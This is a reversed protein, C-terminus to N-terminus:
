PQPVGQAMGADDIRGMLEDLEDQSFDMGTFDSPTYVAASSGACAASLRRVAQRVRDLLADVTAAEHGPSHRCSLVIAGGDLWVDFALVHRRSAQPARESGPALRLLDLGRSGFQGIEGVFNFSVPPEARLDPHGGYRLLGYGMGGEPTARLREKLTVTWAPVDDSAAPVVFPYRTTFWGITRSLDIAPDFPQRGHGELDLLCAGGAWASVAMGVAALVAEHPRLGFVSAMGGLFGASEDAPLALRRDAAEGETNSHGPRDMPLPVCDGALRLMDQWFGLSASAAQARGALARAWWSWSTSAARISAPGGALGARLDDALISWSVMDSLAHHVVAVLRAQRASVQLAGLAFVRGEALDLTDMLEDALADERRALGPEDLGAAEVVRVGPDAADALQQAMGGATSIWRMRLADHTAQLARAVALLGDADVRGPYRFVAALCWRNRDPMPIETFWQQIPTLPVAERLPERGAMGGVQVALRALGRPTPAQFVQAPTLAWGLRRARGVIQIAMISDGGLAFFDDDPGVSETQLVERWLGRILDLVSDEAGPGAGAAPDGAPAGALSALLAQRDIKGNVTLPLAPLSLIRRPVMAAPVRGALWTRLAEGDVDGAVAAALAPERGDRKDVLVVADRVGAHARLAEALGAPEIRHGRIKVMDDGRGLFVIRGDPRRRGLDGSRYSRTGDDARRFSEKGAPEPQTYGAAVAPGSIVIEGEGGAAVPRGDADLLEVGYGDLPHGIPVAHDGDARLEPLAETMCAGVTTETPGYHNFIRCAAGLARLRDVLRWALVDGGLILAGRPLLGEADPSDLLAALHAPVIKLVDFPTQRVWSALAAPDRATEADIAHLAGGSWLAGFVSTYGLDAAFSSVMAFSPPGAMGLRKLMAPVYAAIAGHPVMVGKPRGTSGSTYLVYAIDRAAVPAPLPAPGGAALGRRWALVAVGDFAARAGDAVVLAKAGSDRLVYAHHEDPHDEDLPVFAAGLRLAALMAVVPGVGRPLRFAVRDGAGIGSRALEGALAHAEADLTAYDVAGLADRLALASPTAAAARAVQGALSPVADTGDRVFAELIGAYQRLWSEVREADFLDRNYFADILLGDADALINWNLDWRVAGHANADIRTDLGDFRPLADIRDLNFSVSALPPRSPERRLKLGKLLRAYPYDRRAMGQAVARQAQALLAAQPQSEDLDLRLPLVGVCYGVLSTAALEPQGASFVAVVLDRRGSLRALLKGYAALCVSFLSCGTRRGLAELGTRLEPPVRLAARAGAYSQLAPRPRDAPLDLPPPITRYVSNWYDAAGADEARRRAHDAYRRYPVAEALEPARGRLAANYLEALELAIVQMSWGDVVLHPMILVLRHHEPAFEVLWATLMPGHELDMPVLARGDLWHQFASEADRWRLTRFDPALEAHVAQTEGDEPFTTRLAEHRRCVAELAARLVAPELKGRLDFLLTQNYAASAEPSFAALMRLATQGPAAPLVEPGSPMAMLAKAEPAPAFAQAPTQTSARAPALMGAARMGRVSDRVADEITLLDEESHATSLFCTRGEWVYVGNQIMHNYFLDGAGIFRFLSSFSHVSIGCAEEALMRNLREAFARTRENLTEQLGPGASELHELVALSAAMALPNKNFTGAFFTREDRPSGAADLPWAGGDLADLYRAEGAVVGIPLGGGVIKGYTVLDARVDAWAQAGGLAVRFGLLVEDFILATGTSRTLARLRQLFERPQRDPRRGQVPEVLVAALSQGERALRELSGAEDGYDLLLIDEAMGPPTGGAMPAAKGDPGPQALVGDFHGHYSGQFMAIRRRGTAHRALRLATMVAETGSNCFAARANGTLRCLRQAVDGALHAQPGIFLGREGLHRNIAEAIFPASHGFLQVGFGMAIDVYRNGDVDFLESGQARAGVIPYLMNKTEPRFGAVARSDALHAGYRIRQDRSARSRQIYAQSFETLGSAQEAGLELRALAAPASAALSAPANPAQAGPAGALAARADPVAANAEADTVPAPAAAPAPAAPRKGGVQALVHEILRLPTNLAEFLARRPISIGWKREMAAVAETLALSDVGMELFGRDSRQDAAPLQLARALFAAIDDALAVAPPAAAGDADTATAAVATAPVGATPSGIASFEAAGEAAALAMVPTKAIWHRRPEFPYGPTEGREATDYLAEWRLPVGAAYLQALMGGLSRWAPQNRRLTPVLVPPADAYGPCRAASGVLNPAGGVEILVNAGMRALAGIGDAFRVPQRIHDTWYEPTDFAADATGTSNSILALRPRSLRLGSLARAYPELAPEMLRSHFAHSTRLAQSAIGRAELAECVRGVAASEGSIVCEDPSNVAALDIAAALGGPLESLCSPPAFVAAMAGGPAAAGMLRGREAVLRLADELSFVGARCAAVYEGLSHGMVFEPEIGWAALREALAYGLVFLAPQAIRTDTLSVGEQVSADDFMLRTLSAGILPDVVAACHDVARRFVPDDQYLGKGMGPWQSGQGTFLFAIRPAARMATGRAGGAPAQGAAVENLGALLAEADEGAVAARFPHGGRGLALAAAVGRPDPQEQAMWAALRRGLRALGAEDPASLPLVLPGAREAAAASPDRPPAAELILHANTGSFGFSSVAARRVPAPPWAQARDVVRLPLRDWPIRPNPSSQHLTPPLRGAELMLVLKILGAIGAAAELHGINTKVAGLLLAEGRGPGYAEALAQTEIPDGLPTGTGHCEVVQVDAPRLGADKLAARILGAQASANPATLSSARGDHNVAGGRVVARIRDGDRLADSLRKLVVFGAGEGRVYGDASADFTRCAHSPSLMGAAAFGRTLADSVLANVGGAIAMDCEGAQLSRCAAHVAVLSSSCATDIALAPGTIDLLHALRGAAASASNGTTAQPTFGQGPAHFRAEYDHTSIGVFVGAARPRRGPDAAGADELAHWAVELLMRHQPDMHAAESDRMGFFPADFCEVGRVYGGRPLTDREPRDPPPEGIADAGEQLLRRFAAADEAGPFRCGLGIVAVLSADDRGAQDARLADIRQQLGTVLAVVQDADLRSIRERLAQRAQDTM